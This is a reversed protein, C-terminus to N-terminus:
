GLAGNNDILGKEHSTWRRLWNAVWWWQAMMADTRGRSLLLLSQISRKLWIMRARWYKQFLTASEIATSQMQPHHVWYCCKGASLIIARCFIQMPLLISGKTPLRCYIDHKGTFRNHDNILLPCTWVLSPTIRPSSPHGPSASKLLM